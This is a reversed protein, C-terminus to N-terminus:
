TLYVAAGMFIPDDTGTTSKARVRLLKRGVLGSVAFTGTLNRTGASGADSLVGIEAADTENWLQYSQTGTGVKRHKVLFDVSTVGTFNFYGLGLGQSADIADYATGVNTLTVM